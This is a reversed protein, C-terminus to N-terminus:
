SSLLVAKVATQLFWLLILVVIPSIDFMGLPPIIRRFPELIPDTLRVLFRLVPNTYNMVWSFVIRIVILLSYIGLFGYLLYGVLRTISRNVISSGVGDITEFLLYFLQLIFYGVVCAALITLLPAVRTDIRLSALLRASPYVMRDTFKKLKYSFRGVAGFPNPDRYNFILRLVMLVIIVMVVFAIFGQIVPFVIPLLM